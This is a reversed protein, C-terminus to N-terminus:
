VRAVHVHVGESVANAALLMSTSTDAVYSKGM